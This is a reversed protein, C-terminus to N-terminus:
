EARNVREFIEIYKNYATSWSFTSAVRSRVYSIAKTRANDDDLLASASAVIGDVDGPRVFNSYSSGLVEPVGGVRTAVIPIGLHGAELLVLGFPEELSPLVFLSAGAILRLTKHHELNAYFFVRDSLKLETALEKLSALHSTARGVLVLKLKRGSDVLKKFALLLVNQGKKPEYTAVNIVYPCNLAYADDPTCARNLSADIAEYDIGNHITSIRSACDPLAQRSKATLADSCAVVQDATAFIFELIRRRLGESQELSTVDAGHVSLILSFRSPVIRKLVALIFFEESPFHINVSVVEETRLFRHWRFLDPIVTALFVFFARLKNRRKYPGRFRVMGSTFEGEHDLKIRSHSWSSTILIPKFTADKTTQRILNRVVESVGGPSTIPWPLIYVISGRAEDQQAM